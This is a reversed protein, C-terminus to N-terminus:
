SVQARFAELAEGYVHVQWALSTLPEFNDRGGDVDPVWPLRDGAHVRGASGESLQSSRYAIRIQSVTRFAWRRTRPRRLLTSLVAPAVKTRVQKAIPGNSTVFQFVRDTTKVLQRAFGIREPEYTDLLGMSARSHVVAAIKWALNVADGIGTNMGQGGVPSHIHAADGLLFVRGEAFRSAVRHHVHYTSFWNVREVEIHLREFVSSSVDQWELSDGRTLAEERVTGILRARGKGALLFLGLFDAEDLAVHLEGNVMPGKADVDAVYFMHAYTGGDFPIELVRRVTSKAGDCGALFSARGDGIHGASDSVRVVVHDGHREFGVLTTSREVRVGHRELQDILLQEHEDQPFMVLFPYPSLGSGMEGLKLHAVPEARIWLNGAGLKLGREVLTAALGVQRYLDLTRPVVAIARSTTGPASTQDVIRVRVGQRVLWLALVLGTPGAGVIFVDTTDM